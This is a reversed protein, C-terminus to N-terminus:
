TAEVDFSSGTVDTPTNAEIWQMSHEVRRALDRWEDWSFWAEFLDVGASLVVRDDKVGISLDDFGLEVTPARKFALLKRPSL